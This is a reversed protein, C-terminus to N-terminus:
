VVSKSLADYALKEELRLLENEYHYSISGRKGPLMSSWQVACLLHQGTFGRDVVEVITGWSKSTKVFPKDSIFTVVDGLGVRSSKAAKIKRPLATM